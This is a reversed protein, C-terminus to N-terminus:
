PKEQSASPGADGAPHDFLHHFAAVVAPQPTRVPPVDPGDEWGGGLARFLDVYQELASTQAQAYEAELGFAQREADVV